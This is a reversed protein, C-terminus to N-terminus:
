HLWQQVSPHPPPTATLDICHLCVPLLVSSARSTCRCWVSRAEGGEGHQYAATVWGSPPWRCDWWQRSCYCRRQNRLVQHSAASHTSCKCHSQPSPSTRCATNSKCPARWVHLDDSSTLSTLLIQKWRGKLHIERWSGMWGCCPCLLSTVSHKKCRDKVM